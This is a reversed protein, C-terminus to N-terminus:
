WPEHNSTRAAANGLHDFEEYFDSYGNRDSDGQQSFPPTSRVNPKWRAQLVSAMREAQESHSGILNRGQGLDDTLNFLEKGEVDVVGRLERFWEPERNRNMEGSEADIYVWSGIRIARHNAGVATDQLLLGRVQKAEGKLVPLLNMSDLGTSDDPSQETIAAITAYWDTLSILAQSVSGPKIVAPWRAVTPVRHGGEYLDRKLGRLPGMSFHNEKEARHYAYHEPGNDSSFVILTNHAVGCDELANMLRGLSYDLNVVFDGYLGAQSSGVFQAAPVLPLHPAHTLYHLYFPTETRGRVRFQSGSAPRLGAKTQIYRVSRDTIARLYSEHLADASHALIDRVAFGNEHWGYPRETGEYPATEGSLFPRHEDYIYRYAFGFIDANQLPKAFDIIENANKASLEVDVGDRRRADWNSPIGWKGLVATDYGAARCLTALTPTGAPLTPPGLRGKGGQVFNGHVGLKDPLTGTLLGVRSPGCITAPSHADLFRMGQRALRDLNPTSIKSEPNMFSADGYGMDDQFVIVINPLELDAPPPSAAFAEVQDITTAGLEGSGSLTNELVLWYHTGARRAKQNDLELVAYADLYSNPDGRRDNSHDTIQCSSILTGDTWTLRSDAAYLSMSVSVENSADDQISSVTLGVFLRDAHQDDFEKADTWGIVQAIAHQPRLFAWQRGDKAANIHNAGDHIVGSGAKSQPSQRWGDIRESQEGAELAQQEFGPNNIHVPTPEAALALSPVFPMLFPLVAAFLFISQRTGTRIM